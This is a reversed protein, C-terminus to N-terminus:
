YTAGELFKVRDGMPPIENGDVMVEVVVPGGYHQWERMREPQLDALSNVQATRIDLSEVMRSIDVRIQSFHDLCRKYQLKHGHYVMGLRSNNIVFFVIPLRYEKAVLIEMGHMFFCGDGTICIVPRMPQALKAGIAGGIGSGMAGFNIDIDFDQSEVIKLNQIAYTMFEGIDIYFRTDESACAGIQQIALKTNWEEVDANMPMLRKLAALGHNREASNNFQHNIHLKQAIGMEWLYSSLQNIVEAADGCINVDSMYNKNFETSDIDIHIIKKGQVLNESWNCTALEGLSSGVVMLLDHDNNNLINIAIENGALGYVGLSLYHNEPFAGKGRPTTAVPWGTQEAFRIIEKSAKKAGHGLLLVGSRGMDSILRVARRLTLDDPTCPKIPVFPPISRTGTETMQVDIPIAIHVPGPVGSTAIQFLKSM